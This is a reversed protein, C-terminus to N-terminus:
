WRGLVVAAAGRGQVPASTFFLKVGDDDSAAATRVRKTSRGHVVGGAIILAAGVLEYAVAMAGVFSMMFSDVECSSDGPYESCESQESLGDIYLALAGYIPLGYKPEDYDSAAAASLIWGIGFAGVGPGWIAPGWNRYTLEIREVYEPDEDIKGLVHKEREDDEFYDFRVLGRDRARVDLIVPRGSRADRAEVRVQKATRLETAAHRAEEGEIVYRNACGSLLALATVLLLHKRYM